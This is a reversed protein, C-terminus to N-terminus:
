LSMYAEPKFKYRECKNNDVLLSFMQLPIIFEYIYINLKKKQGSSVM